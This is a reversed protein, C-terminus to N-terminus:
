VVSNVRKVKIISWLKAIRKIRLPAKEPNNIPFDKRIPSGKWVVTIKYFQFIILLLHVNAILNELYIFGM